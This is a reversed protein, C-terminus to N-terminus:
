GGATGVWCSTVRRLIRSETIRFMAEEILLKKLKKPKRCITHAEEVKLKAEELRYRAEGENLKAESLPVKNIEQLEMNYQEIFKLRENTM